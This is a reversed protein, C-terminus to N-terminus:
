HRALRAASPFDGPPAVLVEREGPVRALWVSGARQSLVIVSTGSLLWHLQVTLEEGGHPERTLRLTRGKGTSYWLEWESQSLIRSTRNATLQMVPGVLLVLAASLGGLLSVVFNSHPHFNDGALCVFFALVVAAAATWTGRATRRVANLVTADDRPRRASRTAEATETVGL